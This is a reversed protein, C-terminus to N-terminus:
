RGRPRAPRRACAAASSARNGAVLRIRFWRSAPLALRSYLRYRRSRRMPRAYRRKPAAATSQAGNSPRSANGSGSLEQDDAGARAARSREGRHAVRSTGSSTSEARPTRNSERGHACAANSPVLAVGGGLGLQVVSGDRPRSRGKVGRRKAGARSGRRSRAIVALVSRTDRSRPPSRASTPSARAREGVALSAEHM